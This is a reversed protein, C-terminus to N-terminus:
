PQLERERKQEQERQAAQERAREAAQQAKLEIGRAQHENARAITAEPPKQGAHAQAAKARQAELRQHAPNTQTPQSTEAQKEAQQM